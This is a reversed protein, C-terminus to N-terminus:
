SQSDEKKGERERRIKSLAYFSIFISFNCLLFMVYLIFIKMEVRVYHLSHIICLSLSHILSLFIKVILCHMMLWRCSITSAFFIKPIGFAFIRRKKKKVSWKVATQTTLAEKIAPSKKEREGGEKKKKVSPFIIRFFCM